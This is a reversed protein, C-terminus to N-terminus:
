FIDVYSVDIMTLFALISGRSLSIGQVRFVVHWNSEEWDNTVNQFSSYKDLKNVIKLDVVQQVRVMM